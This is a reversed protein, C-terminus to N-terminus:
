GKAHEKDGPRRGDENERCKMKSSLCSYFTKRNGKMDRALISKPKGLGLVAHELVTQM